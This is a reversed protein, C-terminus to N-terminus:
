KNSHVYKMIAGKYFFGGSTHIRGSCEIIKVIRADSIIRLLSYGVPYLKRNGLTSRVLFSLGHYLGSVVESSRERALTRWRVIVVYM